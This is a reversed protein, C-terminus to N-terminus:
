FAGQLKALAVVAVVVAASFTVREQEDKARKQDLAQQAKIKDPTWTPDFIDFLRMKVDVSRKGEQAVAGRITTSSPSTGGVFSQMSSGIALALLAAVAAVLVMSLIRARAM